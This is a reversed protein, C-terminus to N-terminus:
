RSPTQPLPSASLLGGDVPLTHGTIWAADSSALFAVAAAVDKPEGVRGLPYLSALRDPGGQDDWVRTRITGPAVINIRVRDPGLQGALNGVLSALGAKAASYPESGLSTLANISGVVVVAPDLDSARLAPLAARVTRVVGLLNLDFMAQWVRDETYEFAGHDTDGGAVHILADLAPSDGIAEALAAEVSEANTVDIAVGAHARPGPLQAAGLHAAASDLDAIIVRGGEAAIREACSLGIGHGGGVVLVLQDSFRALVEPQTTM